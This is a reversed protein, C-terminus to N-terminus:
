APLFYEYISNIEKNVLEVTKTYMQHLGIVYILECLLEETTAKLRRDYWEQNVIGMSIASNHIDIEADTYPESGYYDEDNALNKIHETICWLLDKHNKYTM